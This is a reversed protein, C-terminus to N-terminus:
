IAHRWRASRSRIWPSGIRSGRASCRLSLPLNDAHSHVFANVGGFVSGTGLADGAVDSAMRGRGDAQIRGDAFLMDADVLSPTSYSPWGDRGRRASSFCRTSGTRPMCTDRAVYLDHLNAAEIHPVGYSDRTVTVNATLGPVQVNGNLTPLSKNITYWTYLAVGGVLLLVIVIVGVIVNRRSLFRRRAPPGPVADSVVVAETADSRYKGNRSVPTSTTVRRANSKAGGSGGRDQPRSGKGLSAM